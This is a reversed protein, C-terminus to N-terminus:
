MALFVSFTPAWIIKGFDFHKRFTTYETLYNYFPPNILLMYSVVTGVKNGLTRNLTLLPAKM